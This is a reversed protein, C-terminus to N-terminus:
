QEEELCAILQEWTKKWDGVLPIELMAHYAERPTWVRWPKLVHVEGIMGNADLSIMGFDHTFFMSHFASRTPRKFVFLAPKKKRAYLGRAHQWPTTFVYAEKLVRTLCPHEHAFAFAM